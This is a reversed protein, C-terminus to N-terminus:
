VGAFVRVQVGLEAGGGRHERRVQFVRIEISGGRTGTSFEFQRQELMRSLDELDEQALIAVQEAPLHGLQLEVEVDILWKGDQARDIDVEASRDVNRRLQAKAVVGAADALPPLVAAVRAFQALQEIAEVDDVLRGTGAGIRRLDRSAARDVGAEANSGAH